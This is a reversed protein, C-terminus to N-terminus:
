PTSNKAGIPLFIAYPYEPPTCMGETDYQDLGMQELPRDRQMNVLSVGPRMWSRRNITNHRTIGIAHGTEHLLHEIGVLAAEQPDLLYRNLMVAGWIQARGRYFYDGGPMRAQGYDFFTLEKNAVAMLVYVPYIPNDTFADYYVEPIHPNSQFLKKEVIPRREEMMQQFPVPYEAFQPIVEQTFRIPLFRNYYAPVYQLAKDLGAFYDISTDIDPQDPFRVAVGILHIQSLSIKKDGVYREIFREYLRERGPYAPSSHVAFVPNSCLRPTIPQTLDPVAAGDARAISEGAVKALILGTVGALGAVLLTRRSIIPQERDEAPILSPVPFIERATRVLDLLLERKGKPQLLEM